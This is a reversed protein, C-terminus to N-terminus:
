LEASATFGSSSNNYWYMRGAGVVAYYGTFGHQNAVMTISGSTNVTTFTGYTSMTPVARMKVPFYVQGTAVAGGATYIDAFISQNAEGIKVYYRDCLEQEKGVSRRPECQKGKEYVKVESFDFTGSQQGLSATRAAYASGADMWLLLALYDNGDTGLIKGTISPIAVEIQFHQWSTTLAVLQAGISDVSTSPSGTTGFYQFFELAINKSADAKAYFDLVATKGSLSEVGEINQQKIAYNSAGAVSTVVTRAHYTPNNPVDTQGLTFTQQSVVQTTGGILNRFRDDSGYDAATQSTARQWIDFTGNIIYNKGIQGLLEADNGADDTFMLENPTATKVWLQGDGAVDADAAAKETLFISGDGTVKSM